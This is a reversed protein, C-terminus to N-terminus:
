KKQYTFIMMMLKKEIHADDVKYNNFSPIFFNKEKRLGLFKLINSM